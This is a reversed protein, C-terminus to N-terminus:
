DHKNRQHHSLRTQAIKICDYLQKQHGKTVIEEMAKRFKDLEAQYDTYKVWYGNSTASAEEVHVIMGAHNLIQYRKIDSM